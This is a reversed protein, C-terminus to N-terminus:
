QAYTLSEQRVKEELIDAEIAPNLSYSDLQLLDITLPRVSGFM